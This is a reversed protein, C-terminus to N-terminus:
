LDSGNSPPFSVTTGLILSKVEEPKVGGEKIVTRVAAEIGDTVDPTTPHKYWAKVGREPSPQADLDLLVGDTNTGTSVWVVACPYIVESRVKGVFGITCGLISVEM